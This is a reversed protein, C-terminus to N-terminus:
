GRRIRPDALGYLTDTVLNVVIVGILFVSILAQSLPYDRSLISDVLLKGLGPRGFVIEAIAAGGLVQGFFLGLVALIPVLANRYAHVWIVAAEALGKARATRMYDEDLVALLSARTTRAVLAASQFGLALSPLVLYYAMTLPSRGEGAGQVPFWDLGYAFVYIMMLAMLFGPTSVGLLSIVMAAFDAWTNRKLAAITGLPIGILCTVLMSALALSVTYPWASRIIESVDQRKALSMGFDFTLINKLFVVYQVPLPQDLGYRERLIAVLEPTRYDGLMIEVPDGPILRLSLFVLTLAGLVTIVGRVLRSMVFRM